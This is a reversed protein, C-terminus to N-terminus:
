YKPEDNILHLACYGEIAFCTNIENNKLIKEVAEDAGKLKRTDGFSGSQVFDFCVVDGNNLTKSEKSSLLQRVLPYLKEAMFSILVVLSDIQDSSLSLFSYTKRLPNSCRM